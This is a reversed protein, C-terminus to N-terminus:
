KPDIRFASVHENHGQPDSARVFYVGPPLDQRFNIFFANTHSFVASQIQRGDAARIEVQWDNPQNPDGPLLLNIHDVAPNPYVVLKGTGNQGLVVEKVTSWAMSGPTVIRLRYYWKGAGPRDMYTHDGSARSGITTFSAGDKSRQIEYLLDKEEGAIHWDLQVSLPDKMVATFSTLQSALLGGDRCYIYTLSFRTVDTATAHYSYSANTSTHINTYTIPAYTFSVKGAGLFPATIATISDINAYNSLLSFPPMAMQDGPNLSYTGIKQETINDYTVPLAPSSIMDERGVWLGYSGAMVDVNKLSFGYQVNVMAAVKVSVLIGSDPSWKPFSLHYNGYGPGTLVTDYTRATLGSSCQAIANHQLILGTCLILCSNKWSFLNQM